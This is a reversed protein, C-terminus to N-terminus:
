EYMINVADNIYQPFKFDDGSYEFIRLACEVKNAKMYKLLEEQCSYSKEFIRNLLELSNNRLIVPELTNYNFSQGDIKNNEAIISDYCIKINSYGEFEKYKRKLAEINGDNDTVVTTKLELAKSIELFRTFSLNNVSIVDIGDEIPLRGQHYKMYAKQIILEDSAGEVLIASDSLIIRLTDFGPLKKFYSATSTSLEDLRFHNQNNLLILNQLGLKNAVYSSHTTIIVQKEVCKDSISKLLCNLRTHSLHNEPEEILIIDARNATKNALSLQTKVVAQEGKGIFIFPIEDLYPTLFEEWASRSNMDVGLKIKKISLDCSETIKSNLLSISENTQFLEQLQRFAQTLNVIDKDDLYEKIIRSLLLDTNNRSKINSSDIFACNIPISRPIIYSRAFSTWTIDYFELPLTRLGNSVLTAYEEIFKENFAIDLRVGCAKNDKKSNDDGMFIPYIENEFYIEISISPPAKKDETDLSLIYEKVSEYNFLYQSLDHKISKGRYQGTLVLDIAELITTKGAENNGVLINIGKNLPLIFEEKFCKFNTIHLETIM